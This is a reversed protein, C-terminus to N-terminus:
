MGQAHRLELTSYCAHIAHMFLVTYLMAHQVQAASRHKLWWPAMSSLGALPLVTDRSYFADRTDRSLAIVTDRSLRGLAQFGVPTQTRKDSQMDSAFALAALQGTYQGPVASCV